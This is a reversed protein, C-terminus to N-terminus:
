KAPSALAPAVTAVADALEEENGISGKRAKLAALAAPQGALAQELSSRKPKVAVFRGDAPYRLYYSAQEEYQKTTASSAYSGTQDQKTIVETRRFKLLQLQPSDALVEGCAGGVAAPLKAPAFCLFRRSPGAPQPLRFEQVRGLPVVVSDGQTRRVRLEQRFLDYKIPVAIPKQNGVLLVEAPTWGPQLYYSGKVVGADPPVLSYGNNFNGNIDRSLDSSWGQALCRGAGLLLMAATGFVLTIRM